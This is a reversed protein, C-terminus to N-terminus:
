VRPAVARRGDCGYLYNKVNQQITVESVVNM